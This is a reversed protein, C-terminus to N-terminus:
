IIVVSGTSTIAKQRSLIIINTEGFTIGDASIALGFDIVGSTAAFIVAPLRKYIVDQGVVLGGRVSGGIFEVMAQIIRDNGDAPFTKPDTILNTIQVWVNITYPRSFNINILRGNAMFVQVSTNGFTQIGGGKKSFILQAVAADAGGYVVIEFSHPPLGTITDTTDTENEYGVASFVGAVNQMVAAAIADVNVGQGANDVSAYYRARFEADTETGRGGTFPETNTVSTIGSPTGPNEISIITNAPTNGIPGIMVARAPIKVEGGQIIGLSMTVYQVGANNSALWGESIVTGDEGTVLLHGTAPGAPLLRLGIARGLNLLSTGVATDIFRSNYVAEITAFLIGIVWAFLRLFIGMPSRITLNVGEGFLERAKAELASLLESYAPRRFGRETLGWDDQTTM